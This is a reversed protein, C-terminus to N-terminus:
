SILYVVFSGGGRARKFTFVKRENKLQSLKEETEGPLVPKFNVSHLGKGTVITVTRLRLRICRDIFREVENLAEPVTFGHLDLSDQSQPYDKIKEGMTSNEQASKCRERNMARVMKPTTFQNLLEDLDQDDHQMQM